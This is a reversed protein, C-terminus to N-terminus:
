QANSNEPKYKQKQSRRSHCRRKLFFDIGGRGLALRGQEVAQEEAPV